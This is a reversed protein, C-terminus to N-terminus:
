TESDPTRREDGKALKRGLAKLAMRGIGTQHRGDPM